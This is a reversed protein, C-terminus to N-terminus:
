LYGMINSLKILCVIFQNQYYLREGMDMNKHEYNDPIGRLVLESMETDANTDVYRQMYGYERNVIEVIYSLQKKNLNTLVIYPSFIEGELHGACSYKTTVGCKWFNSIPLCLQDDIVVTNGGCNTKHDMYQPPRLTAFCKQCVKRM